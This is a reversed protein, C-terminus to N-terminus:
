VHYISNSLNITRVLTPTIYIKYVSQGPGPHFVLMDEM